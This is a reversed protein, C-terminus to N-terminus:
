DDIFHTLKLEASIGAKQSREVCFLVQSRTVNTQEYFGNAELWERLKPEARPSATSVLYVCHNQRSHVIRRLTGFAAPMQPTQLHDPYFFGEEGHGVRGDIIVGGIDVGLRIKM